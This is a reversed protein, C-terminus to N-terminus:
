AHSLCFAMVIFNYQIPNMIFIPDSVSDDYSIRNGDGSSPTKKLASTHLAGQMIDINLGKHLSSSSPLNDTTSHERVANHMCILLPTIFEAHSMIIFRVSTALEEKTWMLTIIINHDGTMLHKCPCLKSGKIQM